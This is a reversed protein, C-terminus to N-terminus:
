RSSGNVRLGSRLITVADDYGQRSDGPKVVPRLDLWWKGNQTMWLVREVQADTLRLQVPILETGGTATSTTGLDSSTKLVLVNRVITRSRHCSSCSEPVNWTAVIDVRDGDKLTGELVQNPDGAIQVVRETRDVQSRVGSEALPGFRRTSVQEDALTAQTAILGKLQTPSSIAGPVVAKRPVRKEVLGGSSLSSGSTGTDINHAAVFVSVVQKGVDAQHRVKSMYLFIFVVALLALGSATLINRTRYTM